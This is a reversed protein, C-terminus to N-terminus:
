CTSPRRDWWCGWSGGNMSGCGVRKVQWRAEKQEGACEVRDLPQRQAFAVGCLCRGGSGGHGRNRHLGPKAAARDGDCEGATRCRLLYRDWLLRHEEGDRVFIKEPRIALTVVDDVPFQKGEATVHAMQGSDLRVHIHEPDNAVVTAHLFNTEGIFDAVFRTTPEEYIDYPKDVQLINGENMVAIRDSM